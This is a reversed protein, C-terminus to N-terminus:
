IIRVSILPMIKHLSFIIPGHGSSLRVITPRSSSCVSSSTMVFSLTSSSFTTGSLWGTTWGFGRFVLSVLGFGVIIFLHLIFTFAFARFLRCVTVFSAFVIFRLLLFVRFSLRISINQFLVILWKISSISFCFSVISWVSTWKRFPPCFPNLSKIFWCWVWQLPCAIFSKFCPIVWRFDSSVVKAITRQRLIVWFSCTWQWWYCYLHM